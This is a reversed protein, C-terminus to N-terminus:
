TITSIRAPISRNRGYPFHADEGDKQPGGGPFHKTMCAVSQPGLEEGQFGRIYASVMRSALAAEEGFTGNIRGAATDIEREMQAYEYIASRSKPTIQLYTVQGHWKPNAILFRAYDAFSYGSSQRLRRWDAVSSSVSSVSYAPPYTAPAPYQASASATGLVFPLIWAVRWMSSM